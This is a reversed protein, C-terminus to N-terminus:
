VAINDARKQASEQEGEEDDQEDQVHLKQPKIDIVEDAFPQFQLNQRLQKEVHGDSEDRPCQRQSQQQGRQHTEAVETLM